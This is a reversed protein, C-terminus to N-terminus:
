APSGARAADEMDGLRRWCLWLSRPVHFCGKYPGGKFRHTVRGGRDLYGFWEGHEPDPFHGFTYADTQEFLRWDDADGTLSADLLHAYLAECHPWWLKMPWELATPSLGDADLFYFLGGHADDWGRRHSSRVVDLALASLDDRGLRQAWHQVFWGAEIAHGPNLLRGEPSDLLSGDPAVTERVEVGGDAPRVHRQVRALLGDIEASYRRWDDGAVEEILNLLIMPVALTISPTQGPLVPRGIETPDHAWHFIRELMAEAEAILEPRDAARGHEALAMTTFCESFVKRQRYIPAGDRALHFYVLGDDRVAHERLFEVGSAALALWGARPEVTRYLRSFLWAQRGMLWVHKSTDYVTGDRDLNNFTGGRERDPSHREWFPLVREFLEAEYRQRLTHLSAADVGPPLTITM